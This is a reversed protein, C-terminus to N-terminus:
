SGGGAPKVVILRNPKWIVQEARLEARVYVLNRQAYDKHQNFALISLGEVDLLAVQRWDGLIVTGPALRQSLARARGWSTSPGQGFPGQGMFRDTTDQLLDWAEDDEPSMLVATVNGGPLTTIKTIAQRIAKVQAMANAGPSYTLEQVGTTHLIGKPEGSAGTGNLLKDEIVSDLSYELENNMYTALAPADSLLANTVDYGDAYTYPKADALETQITSTPKVTADGPLIEDPVIAANRTVGTVQLYEFPGDAEGRTVLDLITLNDRDVQDVMPMRVPQVHGLAVQLPSATAKRGGLWEKMTGVKIRGIDVASGQGLGTPHQKRFEGYLNSKVFREGLSAADAVEQRDKVQLQGAPPKPTAAAAKGAMAAAAAQAEDAAKVKGEVEDTETKLENIRAVEDDTFDRNEERAKAVIDAAEKLLAQLKERLTM